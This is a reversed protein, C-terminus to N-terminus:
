WKKPVMKGLKGTDKEVAKQKRRAWHERATTLMWRTNQSGVTHPGSDWAWHERATALMWRRLAWQTLAVVEPVEAAGWRRRHQHTQILPKWGSLCSVSVRFIPRNIEKTHLLKYRNVAFAQNKEGRRWRRQYGYAENGHRHTQKLNIV